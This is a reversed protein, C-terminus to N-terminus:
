GRKVIKNKITLILHITNFMNLKMLIFVIKKKISLYNILKFNFTGYIKEKKINKLEYIKEKLKKPNSKNYLDRELYDTFLNFIFLEYVLDINKINILKENNKSFISKIIKIKNLDESILNDQYKKTESNINQVYYYLEKKVFKVKNISLLYQLNFIGDEFLRIGSPFNIKNKKIIELNYLKGWVTRISKLEINEEKIAFNEDFLNIICKPIINENPIKFNSKEQRESSYYNIHNAIIFEANDKQLYLEELYNDSVFDDSDVFTIWKGKAKQIGFNRSSAVGNNKKNYLIIKKEINKEIIKKCIKETNDSSGDNVIIIEYNKLKQNILSYICREIFKECNYAPIIISIEVEM